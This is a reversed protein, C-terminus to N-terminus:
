LQAVGHDHVVGRYRPLKRAVRTVRRAAAASPDFFWRSGCSRRKLTVPVADNMGRRESPQHVFGLDKQVMFAVEKAGTQCVRELNRLQAPANRTGQLQIFVKDLSYGQSMIQPVGWKTMC